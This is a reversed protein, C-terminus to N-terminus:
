QKFLKCVAELVFMDLLILLDHKELLPIFQSPNLVGREPHNWRVLAEAGVLHNTTLSYKPQLMISFQGHQLANSFVKALESEELLQEKLLDHYYMWGSKREGKLSSLAFLAQDIYTNVPLPKEEITTIGALMDLQFASSSPFSFRKLEEIIINIRRELASRERYSSLLIFKDGSLRAYCGDQTTYRPLVRACHMLLSDGFAYGFHDNILKFKGIDLVIIAYKNTAHRLLIEADHLFRNKNPLATLEDQYALHILTQEYVHDRYLLYSLLAFLLLVVLLALSLVAQLITIGAQRLLVDPVQLLFYGLGDGLRICSLYCGTEEDLLTSAIADRWHPIIADVAGQTALLADDMFQWIIMGDEAVWYFQSGQHKAWCAMIEHFVLTDMRLQLQAEIGDSSALTTRYVVQDGELSIPPLPSCQGQCSALSIKETGLQKMFAQSEEFSYAALVHEIQNLQKQGMEVQYSILQACQLAKGHYLMRKEEALLSHLQSWFLFFGFGITIIIPVSWYLLRLAVPYLHQTPNGWSFISIWRKTRQM